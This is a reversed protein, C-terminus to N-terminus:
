KAPYKEKTVSNVCRRAQGKKAYRVCASYPPADFCLYDNTVGMFHACGMALLRADPSANPDSRVKSNDVAKEFKKTFEKNIELQIHSSGADPEAAQRAIAAKHMAAAIQSVEHVCPSDACRRSWVDNTLQEWVVAAKATMDANLAVSRQASESVLTKAEQDAYLQDLGVIAYPMAPDAAHENKLRLVTATRVLKIAMRCTDDLCEGLWRTEFQSAWQPLKIDFDTKNKAIQASQHAAIEAATACSAGLGPKVTCRSGDNCMVMYDNGQNTKSSYYKLGGFPQCWTTANALGTPAAPPAESCGDGFISAVDCALHKGASGIAKAVGEVGDIVGGVFGNCAGKALQGLGPIDGLVGATAAEDILDCAIEQSVGLTLLHGVGSVIDGSRFDNYASVIQRAVAGAVNSLNKEAKFNTNFAFTCITPIDKFYPVTEQLKQVLQQKADATQAKAYNAALTSAQAMMSNTSAKAKQDDITSSAKNFVTDIATIPTMCTGQTFGPVKARGIKVAGIIGFYPYDQETAHEFVEGAEKPYRVTFKAMEIQDPDIGLNAYSALRDFLSDAFDSTMPTTSSLFPFRKLSDNRSLIPRRAVFRRPFSSQNPPASVFIEDPLPPATATPTQQSVAPVFIATLLALMTLATILRRHRRHKM